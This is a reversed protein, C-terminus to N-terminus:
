PQRKYVRVWDVDMWAPYDKPDAAGVWNGEIQMSFIFYFPTNFPYQDEGKGVLKPYTHTQKGNVTFIIKEDDWEMGYTNWGDKKIKGTGSSAPSNKGGHNVTYDSHVTQYVFDDFNLHEMLDIEGMGPKGWPAGSKLMWLAPWAGQASKVRARIQVKGYTFDFKGESQIGGTLYPTGGEKPNKVGWLRLVGNKVRIAKPNDTMMNNWDSGARKVLSWSKTDLQKGSFEDHWFLKWGSPEPVREAQSLLAGGMFFVCCMLYRKMYTLMRRECLVDKLSALSEDFTM